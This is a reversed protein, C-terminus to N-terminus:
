RILVWVWRGDERPKPFGLQFLWDRNGSKSEAFNMADEHNREVACTFLMTEGKLYKTNHSLAGVHELHFPPIGKEMDSMYTM